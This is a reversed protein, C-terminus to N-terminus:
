TTKITGDFYTWPSYTNGLYSRLCPKLVASGFDTAYAIQIGADAWAHSMSVIFGSTYPHNAINDGYGFRVGGKFDNANTSSIVETAHSIKDDLNNNVENLASVINSKASTTLTSLLGIRNKVSEAFSGPVNENIQRADAAYGVSAMDTKNYINLEALLANEVDKIARNAQAQINAVAQDCREIARSISDSYDASDFIQGLKDQLVYIIFSATSERFNNKYFKLDVVVKGVSYLEDASLKYEYTGDSSKTINYERTTGDSRRFVIKATTGSTDYDEVTIIVPIGYDNQKFYFQTDVTNKQYPSVIVNYSRM